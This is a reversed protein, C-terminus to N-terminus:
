LRSAQRFFRRLSCYLLLCGRIFFFCCRSSGRRVNVLVYGVKDGLLHLGDLLLLGFCWGFGISRPICAIRHLGHCVRLPFLLGVEDHNLVDRNNLLVIEITESGIVFILVVLRLTWFEVLEVLVGIHKLTKAALNGACGAAALNLLFFDVFPRRGVLVLGIVIRGVHRSDRSLVVFLLVFAGFLVQVSATHEVGHM